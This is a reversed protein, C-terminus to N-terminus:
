SHKACEISSYYEAEATSTTVCHQLESYWSTPTNGMQMLFGSTSKRTDSDGAFDADIYIKLKIGKEM